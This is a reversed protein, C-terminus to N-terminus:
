RADPGGQRQQGALTQYYFTHLFGLPAHGGMMWLWIARGTRGNGDTFPHLKEYAVHVDFPDLMQDRLVSAAIDDLLKVLRQRIEPGGRPAVYSGVRVDLGANDRLRNGPAYVNLLDTLRDLTLPRTVFHTTATIESVTPEREIGEIRNSERVFAIVDPVFTM